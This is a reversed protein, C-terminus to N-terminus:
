DKSNKFITIVTEMFIRILLATVCLGVLAFIVELASHRGYYIMRIWYFLNVAEFLWFAIQAIRPVLFKKFVLYDM